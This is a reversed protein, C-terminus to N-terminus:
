TGGPFFASAVATLVVRWHKPLPLLAQELESSFLSCFFGVRVVSMVKLGKM